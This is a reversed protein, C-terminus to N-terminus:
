INISNGLETLKYWVLGDQETNTDVELVERKLLGCVNRRKVLKHNSTTALYYEGNSHQCVVAGRRISKLLGIMDYTLPEM